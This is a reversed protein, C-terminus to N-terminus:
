FRTARGEVVNNVPNIQILSLTPEGHPTDHVYFKWTVNNADLFHLTGSCDPDITYVGNAGATLQVVNGLDNFPNALVVGPSTVTGDGNFDLLEIIAKPVWPTGPAANPARTFGSGTLLYQGKLMQVTCRPPEAAADQLCLCLCL